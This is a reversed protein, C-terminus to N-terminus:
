SQNKPKEHPGLHYVLLFFHILGLLCHPLLYSASFGAAAIMRASAFLGAFMTVCWALGGWRNKLVFGAGALGYTALSDPAPRTHMRKAADTETTEIVSLADLASM